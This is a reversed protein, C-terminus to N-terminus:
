ARRMGCRWHPAGFGAKDFAFEVMMLEDTACV